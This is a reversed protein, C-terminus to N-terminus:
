SREWQREADRLNQRRARTAKRGKSDREKRWSPKRYLMLLSQGLTVACHRRWQYRLIAIAMGIASNGHMLLGFTFQFIMWLYTYTSASPRAPVKQNYDKSARTTLNASKPNSWPCRLLVNALFSRRVPKGILVGLLRRRMHVSALWCSIWALCKKIWGSVGLIWKPMSEMELQLPTSERATHGKWGENDFPFASWGCHKRIQVM